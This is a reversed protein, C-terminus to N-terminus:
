SKSKEQVFVFDDEKRLVDIAGGVLDAGPVTFHNDAEWVVSDQDTVGAQEWEKKSISRTTAVGTYKVEQVSHSM